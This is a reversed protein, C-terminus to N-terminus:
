RKNLTSLSVVNNYIKKLRGEDLFTLIDDTIADLMKNRETNPTYGIENARPLDSNFQLNGSSTLYFDQKHSLVQPEKRAIERIPTNLREFMVKDTPLDRGTVQAVYGIVKPTNSVLTDFPVVDFYNDNRRVYNYYIRYDHEAQRAASEIGTGYLKNKRLAYSRVVSIPDRIIVLAPINCRISERLLSISHIHHALKIDPFISKVQDTAYTNGSRAYGAITLETNSKPWIKKSYQGRILLWLKHLRPCSRTLERLERRIKRM